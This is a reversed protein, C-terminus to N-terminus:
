QKDDEGDLTEKKDFTTAYDVNREAQVMWAPAQPINETGPVVHEKKPAEAPRVRKKVNNFWFDCAADRLSKEYALDAKYVYQKLTFRQKAILAVLNWHPLDFIMRNWACQARYYDPYDQSGSRGWGGLLESNESMCKVELGEYFTQPARIVGPAPSVTYQEVFRVIRDPSARMFKFEPHTKARHRLPYVHFAGKKARRHAWLRAVGDELFIGFEMAETTERPEVLGLKEDYLGAATQFPSTGLIAAIESGGIYRRRKKIEKETMM